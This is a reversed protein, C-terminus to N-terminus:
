RFRFPNRERVFMDLCHVRDGPSFEVDGIVYPTHAHNGPFVHERSASSRSPFVVKRQFWCEGSYGLLELWAQAATKTPCGRKRTRRGDPRTWQVEWRRGKKTSYPSVTSM